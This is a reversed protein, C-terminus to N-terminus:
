GNELCTDTLGSLHLFQLPNDTRRYAHYGIDTMLVVLIEGRQFGFPRLLHFQENVRLAHYFVRRVLIDARTRCDHPSKTVIFLRNGRTDQLLCVFRYEFHVEGREYIVYAIETRQELGLGLQRTHDFRKGVACAAHFHAFRQLGAPQHIIQRDSHCVLTHLQAAGTDGQRNNNHVRFHCGHIQNELVVKLRIDIRMLRELGNNCGRVGLTQLVYRNMDLYVGAHVTQAKVFLVYRPQHVTQRVLIGYLNTGDKRM